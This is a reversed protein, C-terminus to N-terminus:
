LGAMRQEGRESLIRRLNEAEAVPLGNIIADTSASATHLKVEAIGLYRGLPGQSTDVFQMRGYPIVSIRRFMIGKRWLLHDEAMAYGMARVQRPVLWLEWVSVAIALATGIHFWPSAWIGAAVFGILCVGNFVLNSVLRATILRPSVPRFIIGDPAFPDAVAPAATPHASTHPM